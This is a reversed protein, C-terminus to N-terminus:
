RFARGDTSPGVKSLRACIMECCEQMDETRVDEREIRPVRRAPRFPRPFTDVHWRSPFVNGPERQKLETSHVFDMECWRLFWLLIRNGQFYWCRNGM